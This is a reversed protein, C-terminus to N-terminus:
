IRTLWVDIELWGVHLAVGIRVQLRRRGPTLSVRLSLLVPAM